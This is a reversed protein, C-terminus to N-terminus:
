KLGTHRRGMNDHGPHSAHSSRGAFSVSIADRVLLCIEATGDSAHHSMAKASDIM